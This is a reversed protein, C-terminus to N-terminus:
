TPQVVIQGHGSWESIVSPDSNDLVVSSRPYHRVKPRHLNIPLRCRFLHPQVFAPMKPVTSNATNSPAM